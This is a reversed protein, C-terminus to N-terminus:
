ELKEVFFEGEYDGFTVISGKNIMENIYIGKREYSLRNLNITDFKKLSDIFNRHLELSNPLEFIPSCDFGEITSNPLKTKGILLRIREEKGLSNDFPSYPTISFLCYYPVVWTTNELSKLRIYQQDSKISAMYDENERCSLLFVFIISLYLIIKM